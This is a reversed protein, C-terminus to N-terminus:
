RRLQYNRVARNHEELTKSFYHTRDPKAVFYLYDTDAPFLAAHLSAAGPSAVPGPPLGKILYTNYPTPTTLHKRTINGDFDKIGYIVTPDSALRMNRKLRNHFVSAIVPRESAVGTEKEIISALTVIEFVSFGMERAQSEWEPLFVRSFHEIMASIIQEPSVDGSFYYTDPFLFGECTKADIGLKQVEIEDTAALIFAQRDCFGAAEVKEAIQTITYGEPISLRHLRVTGDTLKKLIETPAMTASLLYEGAIINRDHKSFRAIMKFKLASSILNQRHLNNSIRNLTQGPLIKFTVNETASKDTPQHAFFYIEGAFYAAIAIVLIGGALFLTLKKEM